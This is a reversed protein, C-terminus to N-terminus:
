KTNSIIILNIVFIVYFHFTLYNFLNKEIVFNLVLLRLSAAAVMEVRFLKLPPVATIPAVAAVANKLRIVVM